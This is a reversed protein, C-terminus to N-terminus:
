RRKIRFTLKGQDEPDPDTALAALDLSSADEGPAVNLTAGVMTPPPNDPVLEGGLSMNKVNGVFEAVFQDYVGADVYIREM